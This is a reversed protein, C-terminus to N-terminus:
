PSILAQFNMGSLEDLWSALSTVHTFNHENPTLVSFGDVKLEQKILAPSKLMDSM